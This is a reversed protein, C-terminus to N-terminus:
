EKGNVLRLIKRIIVDYGDPADTFEEGDEGCIFWDGVLHHFGLPNEPLDLILGEENVICIVNEAIHVVEIYGGVLEQCAELTNPIERVELPGGSSKYLVRIQDKNM